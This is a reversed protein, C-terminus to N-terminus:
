VGLAIGVIHILAGVVLLTIGFKGRKRERVMEAVVADDISHELRMRDHVRFAMYAIIVTGSIHIVLGLIAVAAGLAM